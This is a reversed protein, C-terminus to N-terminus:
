DLDYFQQADEPHFLSEGRKAREEMVRVKDASGPLAETPEQPRKAQCLFDVYGIAMLRDNPGLLDVTNAELGPDTIRPAYADVRNRGRHHPTRTIGYGMYESPVSLRVEM